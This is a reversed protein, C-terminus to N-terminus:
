RGRTRKVQGKKRSVPTETKEKEERDREIKGQATEKGSKDHRMDKKKSEVFTGGRKVYENHLWKSAPLSPYPHFRHRAEQELMAWLRPNQPVLNTKRSPDNQRRGYPDFVM